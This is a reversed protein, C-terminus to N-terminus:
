KRIAQYRIFANYVHLANGYQPYITNEFSIRLNKMKIAHCDLKSVAMAVYQAARYFQFNKVAARTSFLQGVGPIPNTMQPRRPLMPM